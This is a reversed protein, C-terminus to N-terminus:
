GGALMKELPSAEAESPFQDLVARARARADAGENERGM